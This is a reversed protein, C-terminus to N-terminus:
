ERVASCLTFMANVDIKTKNYIDSPDLVIFPRISEFESEIVPAIELKGTRMSISSSANKSIKSAPVSKLFEVLEDFTHKPEGYNEAIKYALKLHDSKEYLAWMNEVSGSMPIANRFYKRSEESLMHFHTSAGGASHGFLTIRQNDGSFYEINTHVWKLALQQDKLGMNGSYERTGLSLFGFFGLRYNMTVLIM